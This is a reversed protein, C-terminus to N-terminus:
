EVIVARATGNWEAMYMGAPLGEVSLTWESTGALLTVSAAQVGLMTVLRLTTSHAISEGFNLYINKDAPNPYLTFGTSTPTPLEEVGNPDTVLWIKATNDKSATVVREGDPSWIAATVDGTHGRLTYLKEGTAASWVIATRDASSSAIKSGDPSWSIDTVPKTHGNLTFLLNRSNASWITVTTDFALAVKTGGPSWRGALLASTTNGSLTFLKEGSV